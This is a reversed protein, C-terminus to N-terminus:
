LNEPISQRIRSGVNFTLATTGVCDWVAPWGGSPVDQSPGLTRKLAGFTQFQNVLLTVWAIFTSLYM